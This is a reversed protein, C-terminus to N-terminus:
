RTIGVGGIMGHNHHDIGSLVLVGCEFGRFYIGPLDGPIMNFLPLWM